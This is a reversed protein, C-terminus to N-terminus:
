LSKKLNDVLTEWPDKQDSLFVDFVMGEKLEKQPNVGVSIESEILLCKDEIANGAMLFKKSKLGFAEITGIKYNGLDLNSKTYKGTFLTKGDVKVQDLDRFVCGDFSYKAKAASAIEKITLSSLFCKKGMQRLLAILELSSPYCKDM